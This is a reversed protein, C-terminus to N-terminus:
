FIPEIGHPHLELDVLRCTNGGPKLQAYMKKFARKLGADGTNLHM